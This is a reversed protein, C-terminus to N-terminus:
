RGSRFGDDSESARRRLSAELVDPALEDGFLHAREVTSTVDNAGAIGAEPEDKFLATAVNRGIRGFGNIGIRM